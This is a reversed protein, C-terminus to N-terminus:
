PHDVANFLTASGDCGSCHTMPALHVSTSQESFNMIIKVHAAVYMRHPRLKEHSLNLGREM